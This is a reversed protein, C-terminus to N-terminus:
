PRTPPRIQEDPYKTSTHYLLRRILDIYAFFSPKSGEIM